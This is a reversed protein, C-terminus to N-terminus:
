RASPAMVGVSDMKSFMEGPPAPALPPVATGPRDFRAGRRPRAAAARQGTNSADGPQETTTASRTSVAARTARPCHSRSAAQVDRCPREREHIRCEVPVLRQTTLTSNSAGAAGAAETGGIRDAKGDTLFCPFATRAASLDAVATTDVDGTARYDKASLTVALM